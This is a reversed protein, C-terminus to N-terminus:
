KRLPFFWCVISSRGEIEGTRSRKETNSYDISQWGQRNNFRLDKGGEFTLLFKELDFTSKYDL